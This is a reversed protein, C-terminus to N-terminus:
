SSSLTRKLARAKRVAEAPSGAWHTLRSGSTWTEYFSSLKRQETDLLVHPIGLLLSLIHGHLRNTIVVRGRSLIQVGAGLNGRAMSDSLVEVARGLLGSNRRALGPRRFHALARQKRVFARMGPGGNVWDVVEVREGIGLPDIRSEADDRGLWVIETAPPAAGELPGIGFATDPCLISSADFYERALELSRRDRLLMTLNPHRNFVSRARDLNRDSGFFVSQPLQVIRRDPCAEIVRERFRQHDPWLDGVNGGGSLLVTGEPLSKRLAEPSFTVRDCTYVVEAGVEALVRKAGLWIASDGINRYCPFDLLAVPTDAVARRLTDRLMGGIEAVVASDGGQPTGDSATM